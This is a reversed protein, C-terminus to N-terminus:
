WRFVAAIAPGNFTLSEIKNGSKMDYDIYRWAAVVDGWGFSYGLGGMAQWTLKSEGTGIDVYYPVFWKRGEGFAFRGKFGVIADWNTLSARSEGARGPLPIPGVNGTVEWGLTQEIDLMRAGAIVDATSAPDSSLRWAGGLMWVWGKLDYSANAAAGGPLPVGGISLDRFGSKTNGVDMYIVDTLMGWRGNHAELSGMFTFKLNDIITEADVTVNSGAGNQPFTTTGGIDPLYGYLTAQWKWGDAAQAVAATSTWLMPIALAAAVLTKAKMRARYLGAMGGAIM